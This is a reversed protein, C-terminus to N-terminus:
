KALKEITAVAETQNDESVGVKAFRVIGDKDIIITLPFGQQGVLAVIDSAEQLHTWTFGHQKTIPLIEDSKHRSASLFVVDPFKEKWTSLVPMERRCPGCEKQWVNIVYVKGKLSANSWTKEDTDKYSFKIFPKGVEVGIGEYKSRVSPKRGNYDRLIQEAYKVKDAPIAQAILKKDLVFGEPAYIAIIRGGDPTKIFAMASGGPMVDRAHKKSFFYGDSICYPAESSETETQAQMPLAAFLVALLAIFKTKM